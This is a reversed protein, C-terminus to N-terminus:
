DQLNVDLLRQQISQTNISREEICRVYIARTTFTLQPCQTLVIVYSSKQLGLFNNGYGIWCVSHRIYKTSSWQKYAVAGVNTKIWSLFLGLGYWKADFFVKYCGVLYAKKILYELGQSAWIIMCLEGSHQKQYTM